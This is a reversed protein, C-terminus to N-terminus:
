PGSMQVYGRLRGLLVCESNYDKKYTQLVDRVATRLVRLAHPSYLEAPHAERAVRARAAKTTQSLIVMLMSHEVPEDDVYVRSM